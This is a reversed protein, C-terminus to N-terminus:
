VTHGSVRPKVRVKRVENDAETTEPYRARRSICPEFGASTSPNKLVYFDQACTRRSPSEAKPGSDSIEPDM